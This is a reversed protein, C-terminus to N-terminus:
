LFEKVGRFTPRHLKCPGHKAILEKHLATSYGKHKAFHYEPFEDGQESIWQDRAVKAIISAAAVPAARLDGKVLPTQLFSKPLNPILCNGDVIVHGSEISLNLVARKMALLAAKLINLETIENVTAFAISWLHNKKIHDSLLNRRKESLAKSDTYKSFDNQPNIIVAAAYVPGALCGRGVEDVGILPFPRLDQWPYPEFNKKNQLPNTRLQIM